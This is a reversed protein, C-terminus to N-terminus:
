DDDGADDSADTAEDEDDGKLRADLRQRLGQSEQLWQSVPVPAVLRWGPPYFNALRPQNQNDRSAQWAMAGIGLLALTGVVAANLWRRRPPAIVWWQLVLGIALMSWDLQSGFRAVQTWGFAFASASALGSLLVSVVAVALVIRLHRWFQAHGTFLKTVLASLGSWLLSVALLMGVIKAANTGFKNLETNGLWAEWLGLATFAMLLGATAAISRWRFRALVQEPALAGGALRLRLRLRGLALEENGNWDFRSGRPHDTHGHRVGNVTDLVQVVPPGYPHAPAEIRLHEPAVHVDGLVLEATLARGVTVPWQQVSLSQLIAGNRDLVELLGLLGPSSPPSAPLASENENM